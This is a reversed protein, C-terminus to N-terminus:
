RGVLLHQQHLSNTLILIDFDATATPRGCLGKFMKGGEPRLFKQSVTGSQSHRPESSTNPKWGDCTTIHTRICWLCLPNSDQPYHAASSAAPNAFFTERYWAHGLYKAARYEWLVAWYEALIESQHLFRLNIPLTPNDVAYLNLMKFIERIMWVILKMRYNGFRAQSNLSLTEIKSQDESFADFTSEQFRKLEEMENLSKAHAEPLDRNQESLQEQLLQQNQRVQEDGELTRNIEGRQSEIVGNMKQISRDYDAQFEHKQIEARCDALIQEKKDNWRSMSKGQRKFHTILSM